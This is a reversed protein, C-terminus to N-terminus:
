TCGVGRSKGSPANNKIVTIESCYMNFLVSEATKGLTVIPEPLKLQPGKNPVNVICGPPIGTRMRIACVLRAETLKQIREDSWDTGDDIDFPSIGGTKDLVEELSVESKPDGNEDALFCLYTFPQKKGTNHLYQVLGANISEQTTSVVFDYLYRPDSLNSQNPAMIFIRTSLSSFHYKTSTIATTSQTHITVKMPM